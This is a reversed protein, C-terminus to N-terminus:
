RAVPEHITRLRDSVRRDIIRRISESSLGSNAVVTEVHARIEGLSAEARIRDGQRAALEETSEQLARQAEALRARAAEVRIAADREHTRTTELSATAHAVADREGAIQEEFSRAKALMEEAKTRQEAALKEIEAIALATVDADVSIDSSAHAFGDVTM